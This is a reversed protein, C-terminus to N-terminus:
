YYFVMNYSNFDDLTENDIFVVEQIVNLNVYYKFNCEDTNIDLEIM